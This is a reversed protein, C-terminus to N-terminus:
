PLAAPIAESVDYIGNLLLLNFVGFDALGLDRLFQSCFNDNFRPVANDAVVLLRETTLV